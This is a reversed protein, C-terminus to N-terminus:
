VGIGEEYVFCLLVVSYLNLLIDYKMYLTNGGYIMNIWENMWANIWRFMIYRTM